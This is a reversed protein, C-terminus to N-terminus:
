EIPIYFVTNIPRVQGACSGSSTSPFSLELFSGDRVMGLMASGGGDVNMLYKIDPFLGRAVAIMEAYDAGTSRWTRGSFVLLVLSGDDTCGIATRPHKVLSHLNSEQTQRSLPNTWGEEDFWREMNDGDCLGVGERILTLGGGYSWRVKEWESDSIGDPADLKVNLSISTVDYYGNEIPTCKKLLPGAMEETLSLVVGVSPLLVGGNRICTVKDRLIVVNVRGEGVEITYTSRDANRDKAAYAPSYIRIESADSNVDEIEWRYSVGSICALGGGLRHNFFMFRGDDKMAICAKAFLPFTEKGDARMYDLHGSAADAQEFPRDSRLDNYLVGLKPTMFFLFNSVIGTGSVGLREFTQRPTKGKECSIVRANQARKIKVAQVLIGKQAKTSDYCIDRLKLEEDFYASRYEANAFSSLYDGLGRDLQRDFDSLSDAKIDIPLTSPRGSYVNIFYEPYRGYMEELGLGYIGDGKDRHLNYLISYNLRTKQTLPVYKTIDMGKPIFVTCGEGSWLGTVAQAFYGRPVAHVVADLLLGRCATLGEEGYVVLCAEGGDIYGQLEEDYKIGKDSLSLVRVDEPLMDTLCNDCIVWIKKDVALGIDKMMLSFMEAENLAFIVASSEKLLSQKKESQDIGDPIFAYERRALDLLYSDVAEGLLLRRVKAINGYLEESTIGDFRHFFYLEETLTKLYADLGAKNILGMDLMKEAAYDVVRTVTGDKRSVSVAVDCLRCYGYLVDGRLAARTYGLSRDKRTLKLYSAM